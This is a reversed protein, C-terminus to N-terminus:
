DCDVWGRRSLVWLEQSRTGCLSSRQMASVDASMVICWLPDAPAAVAAARCTIAARVGTIGTDIGTVVQEAARSLSRWRFVSTMRRQKTIRPPLGGEFCFPRLEWEASHSNRGKWKLSPHTLSNLRLYTRLVKKRRSNIAASFFSHRDCKFASSQVQHPMYSQFISRRIARKKSSQLFLHEKERARM